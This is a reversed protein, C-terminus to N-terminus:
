QLVHMTDPGLVGLILHCNILSLDVQDAIEEAKDLFANRQAM